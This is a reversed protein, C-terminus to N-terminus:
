GPPEALRRVMETRGRVGLKRFASQLQVKVTGPSKGLASAIEKNSLGQYLLGALQREAPTLKCLTELAAPPPAPLGPPGTELQLLFCPLGVDDRSGLLPRLTARAPLGPHNIEAMLDPPLVHSTKLAAGCKQKLAALAKLLPPPLPHTGSSPWKELLREALDNIFVFEGSWSLIATAVPLKRYHQFLAESSQRATELRSVRQIATNFHPWWRKALRLAAETFDGQERRRHLSFVGIIKGRRRFFLGLGYFTGEPELYTKYFPSNDIAEETMVDTVRLCRFHCNGRLPDGMLANERAWGAWWSPPFEAFRTHFLVTPHWDLFRFCACLSHRDPFLRTLLRDAAQWLCRSEVAAHLALLDKLPPDAAAGNPLSTDPTTLPDSVSNSLLQRASRGRQLCGLRPAPAPPLTVGYEDGAM